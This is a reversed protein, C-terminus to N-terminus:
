PLGKNTIKKLYSKLTICNFSYQRAKFRLVVKRNYRELSLQIYVVVAEIIDDHLPKILWCKLKLQVVLSSSTIAECLQQWQFM